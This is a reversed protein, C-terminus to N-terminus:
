HESTLIKIIDELNDITWNPIEEKCNPLEESFKGKKYWITKIGLKNAVKIESKIRDGIAIVENYNLKLSKLTEEFIITEKEDVLKIISFLSSLKYEEIINERKNEKIGILALIFGMEKIKKLLELTEQPIKEIEPLYITRNFDFIIGKIM